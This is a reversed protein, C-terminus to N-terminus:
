GLCSSPRFAIESPLRRVIFVSSARDSLLCFLFLFRTDPKM